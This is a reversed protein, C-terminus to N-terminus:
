QWDKGGIRIFHSSRILEEPTFDFQVRAYKYFYAKIEVSKKLNRSLELGKALSRKQLSCMRQELIRCSSFVCTVKTGTAM